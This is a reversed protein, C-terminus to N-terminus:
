NRKTNDRVKGLLQNSDHHKSRNRNPNTNETNQKEKMYTKEVGYATPSQQLEM